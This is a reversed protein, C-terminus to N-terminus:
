FNIVFYKPDFAYCNWPLKQDHDEIIIQQNNLSSFEDMQKLFCVREINSVTVFHYNSGTAVYSSPFSYFGKHGILEVPKGTIAFQNASANFSLLACLLALMSMVIHKM